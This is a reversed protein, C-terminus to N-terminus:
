ICRVFLIIIKRQRFFRYILSSSVSRKKLLSVVYERESPRLEVRDTKWSSIGVAYSPDDDGDTWYNMKLSWALYFSLKEQMDLRAFLHGEGDFFTGQLERTAPTFGLYVADVFEPNSGLGGSNSVLTSLDGFKIKVRGSDDVKFLIM